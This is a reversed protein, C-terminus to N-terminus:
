GASVVSDGDPQVEIAWTVRSTRDLFRRDHSVLLLGCPCDVLADELAEISPLDLHNTPEDMVILEPAGAMGLALLLKRAEGPSPARTELLREPRSGLRSVVNMVHGLRDDPLALAQDLLQRAVDAPIEQPMLITRDQAGVFATRIRQVIGQVLTSKGCGNPGTIAIRDRPGMTLRPHRLERGGGLPLSGAPLEFLRQRRSPDAPLWIGTQHIKDVRAAELRTRAQSARGQLQRLSAGAKGDTVRALDIRARADSDHRALGRKSRAAPERAARARRVAMEREIAQQAQKAKGREALLSERELRRQESARTYGGPYLRAHPPELWVCQRCLADLLERDHSVILAVGRFRVLAEILLTRAEADLHNTPEDIALLTPRRRLACAIQTRKREGHSLTPWRDLFDQEIGLRGRLEFVDPDWDELLDRLDDPPRDTRQECYVATGAGQVTGREPALEGALIRLLTTKGAGNAGIVGTFGAPLHASLGTFLPASAGDYSFALDSFAVAIPASM